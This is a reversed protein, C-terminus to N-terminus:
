MLLKELFEKFRPAIIKHGNEDPHTSGGDDRTYALTRFTADWPRLNSSHYLDLCPIGKRRCIEVIKASYLAMANSDDAPNYGGWPCPTVIGLPILPFNTQFVNITENICGCLTTTGTDTVEGLPYSLDNGSGFITVVDADAPVNVIRQYFANNNDFRKKYGSGSVGMNVVNIGVADKVYDHYNMLTRINKETLSDGVVVWKKASMLDGADIGDITYIAPPQALVYSSIRIGTANYPIKILKKTYSGTGSPWVESEIVANGDYINYLAKGYGSSCDILIYSLPKVPTMDSVKWNASGYVTTTGDSKLLLNPQSPLEDYTTKFPTKGSFLVSNLFDVSKNQKEIYLRLKITTSPTEGAKKVHFTFKTTGEPATSIMTDTNLVSTYGVLVNSDDWFLTGIKEMVASSLLTVVDGEKCPSSNTSALWGTYFIIRYMQTDSDWYGQSLAGDFKNNFDFHTLDDKLKGVQGRVANGPSPYTNGDEGITIDELRADNITTGEPLAILTDIRAKEVLLASQEAKTNEIDALQANISVLEQPYTAELNNARAIFDAEVADIRDNWGNVEVLATTLATFSTESQIAEADVASRSVTIVFNNSEVTNGVAPVLQLACKLTGINTLMGSAYEIEFIGKNADVADFADLGFKTEDITSKWGLNLTFGTLDEVLGRNTVQVRMIRGTRAEPKEYLEKGARDWHIDADILFNELAM